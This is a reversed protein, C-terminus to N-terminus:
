STSTPRLFGVPQLLESLSRRYEFKGGVPRSRRNLRVMALPFEEHNRRFERVPQPRDIPPCSGSREHSKQRSNVRKQRAVSSLLIEQDARRNRRVAVPLFGGM